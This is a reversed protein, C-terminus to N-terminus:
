CQPMQYRDKYTNLVKMFDYIPIDPTSSIKTVVQGVRLITSIKQDTFVYHFKDKFYAKLVPELAEKAQALTVFRSDGMHDSHTSVEKFSEILLKRSRAFCEGIKQAELGSEWYTYPTAKVAVKPGTTLIGGFTENWEDRDLIQDHKKDISDFMDKIVSYCPVPTKSLRCLERIMKDWDLFTFKGM